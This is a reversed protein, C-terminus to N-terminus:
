GFEHLVGIPVMAVTINDQGGAQLAYEVLARAAATAEAGTCFRAIDAADPLYNWLGDSCLLLWGPGDATITSCARNRGRSRKPQRRRALPDTHPRRTARSGLRGRRRCHDTGAGPLRRGDATAPTRATRSALVGQQRRRQRGHDASDRRFDPRSGGRYVHVVARVVAGHGDAAAAAKAADALGALVAPAHRARRPSRPSCRMRCGCELRRGAAMHADGSTSVGDCVAVAIATRSARHRRRGRNRGRRRGRQPRTRHRPRHDARDRRGGGTAIPSPAGTAASPATNTSTPRRQRLRRMARGVTGDPGRYPSGASRRCRPAAAGASGTPAGCRGSDCQPCLDGASRDYGHGRGFRMQRRWWRSGSGCTPPERAGARPLCREMGTRIGPEDFTPVSCGRPATAPERGAALGVGRRAGSLRITARKTTSELTLAAARKGADLLTQEDLDRPHGATSCSRSRPRARPRSIRQSPPSRTSRRSRAPGTEPECASGRWSRIRRQRLEHDTRWVTEYYRAADARTTACNPPPRSRWSPRSSAPCRPWCRRRFRSRGQRIRGGATRM